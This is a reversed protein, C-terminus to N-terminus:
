AKCMKKFFLLFLDTIEGTIIFINDSVSCVKLYLFANM